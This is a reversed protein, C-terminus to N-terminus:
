EELLCIDVQYKQMANLFAIFFEDEIDFAM